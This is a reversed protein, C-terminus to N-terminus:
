LSDFDLEVNGYVPYGTCTLVRKKSLDHETLVENNRMWVNGAMCLAACAGCRGTECSYPLEVGARKAAQLITRPYESSFRHLTNNVKVLVERKTIDPPQLLIHPQMTVFEEKRMAHQQVGASLLTIEIMRMYNLPGCLYFLCAPLPAAIYKKLLENLLWNGLRSRNRDFLNSFLWEIKLQEPYTQQLQQLANYFITDERSRNSYILIVQISPYRLLVTKLLSFVPTIGSGAALLFFQKYSSMDEPLTFFGSAGITTLLDGTQANDVLKRSFLGNDIRKITIAVPEQRDPSSSLSYNRRQEGTSTDFIFTLFQGAKYPITSGDLTELVFTKCSATERTIAKIRVIKRQGTM